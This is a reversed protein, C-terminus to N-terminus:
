ALALLTECFGELRARISEDDCAQRVLDNKLDIIAPGRQKAMGTLLHDSLAPVEKVEQTIGRLAIARLHNQFLIISNTVKLHRHLPFQALSSRDCDRALPEFETAGTTEERNDVIDGLALLDFLFAFAEQPLLLRGALLRLLRAPHLIFKQRRDRVFQARRESRDQAPRM